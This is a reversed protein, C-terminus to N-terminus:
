KRELILGELFLFLFAALLFFTFREEYVKIKGSKLTRAETRSKIGEFYLVDLDLDGAWYSAVNVVKGNVTLMSAEVRGALIFFVEADDGLHRIVEAGPGIFKIGRRECISALEPNESLFGYGPHLADCGTAAALNVIRHANLYGTM